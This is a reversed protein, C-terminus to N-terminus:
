GYEHRQHPRNDDPLPFCPSVPSPVQSTQRKASKDHFSYSPLVSIIETHVQGTADDLQKSRSVPLSMEPLKRCIGERIRRIDNNWRHHWTGPFQSDEELCDSRQCCVATLLGLVGAEGQSLFAVVQVGSFGDGRERLAM